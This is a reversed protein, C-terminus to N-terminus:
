PQNGSSPNLQKDLLAQPDDNAQSTIATAPRKPPAAMRSKVAPARVEKRRPAANQSAQTQSSEVRRAIPAAPVRGYSSRTPTPATNAPPITGPPLIIAGPPLFQPEIYGQPVYGQPVYGQPAYNQPAYNQPAYGVPPMRAANVPPPNTQGPFPKNDAVKGGKPRSPSAVTWGRASMCTSFLTALETNRARDTAAASSNKTEEGFRQEATARCEDRETNYRDQVSVNDICGSLTIFFLIRLTTKRHTM